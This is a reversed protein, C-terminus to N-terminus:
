RADKPNDKTIIWVTLSIGLGSLVALAIPRLIIEAIIALRLFTILM